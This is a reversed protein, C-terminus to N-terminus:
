LAALLNYQRYAYCMDTFPYEQVAGNVYHKVKYKRNKKDEYLEVLRGTILGNTHYRLSM